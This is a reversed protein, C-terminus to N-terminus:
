AIEDADHVAVVGFRKRVPKGPAGVAARLEAADLARWMAILHELVDFSACAPPEAEKVIRFRTAGNPNAPERWAKIVHRRHDQQALEISESTIPFIGVHLPEFRRGNERMVVAPAYAYPFSRSPCDICDEGRCPVSRGERMHLWLKPCDGPGGLIQLHIGKPYYLFRVRRAASQGPEFFQIGM